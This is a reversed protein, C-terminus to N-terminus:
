GFCSTESTVQQFSIPVQYLTTGEKSDFSRKILQLVEENPSSFLQELPLNLYSQHQLHFHDKCYTNVLRIQGYKLSIDHLTLINLTDHQTHSTM